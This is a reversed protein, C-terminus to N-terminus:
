ILGSVSVESSGQVVQDLVQFGKRHLFVEQYRFREQHLKLDNGGMKERTVQTLLGVIVKSCGEKLYNYLAKPEGRLRGKELSFLRWEKLWKEAPPSLLGRVNKWPNGPTWLYWPLYGSPWSSSFIILFVGSDAPCVPVDVPHGLLRSKILFIYEPPGFSPVFGLSQSVSITYFMRQM